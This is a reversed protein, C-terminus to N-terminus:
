KYPLLEPNTWTTANVSQDYTINLTGNGTLKISYGIIQCQLNLSDGASGGSLSILSSPALITGVLTSNSGGELTVPSNNDPPLYILYGVLDSDLGCFHCTIAHLPALQVQGNIDIGGHQVYFLVGEFNDYAGNGNTDTTVVWSGHLEVGDQFCYIGKGLKLNGAPSVGPFVGSYKGPTAVWDNGVKTIKGSTPCDEIKPYVYAQLSLQSCVHNPPPVTDTYTAGGVVCTGNQSTVSSSGGQTYANDCDSNVFINSTGFVQGQAGGGVTFPDNPWGSTKCGPM